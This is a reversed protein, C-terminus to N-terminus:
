KWIDRRGISRTEIYVIGSLWILLLPVCLDDDFAKPLKAIAVFMILAPLIALSLRAVISLFLDM